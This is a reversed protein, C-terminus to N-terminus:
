TKFYGKTLSPPVNIADFFLVNIALTNHNPPDLANIYREIIHFDESFLDYTGFSVGGTPHTIVSNIIIRVKGSSNNIIDSIIQPITM